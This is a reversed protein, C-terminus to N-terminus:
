TLMGRKLLHVISRIREEKFNELPPAEGTAVSYLAEMFPRGLFSLLSLSVVNLMFHFPNEESILKEQKWKIIMHFLRDPGMGEKAKFFESLISSLNGPNQIVELAMMRVFEPNNDYLEVYFRAIREMFEEPGPESVVLQFIIPAMREFMDRIVNQYLNKKSNFYYFLMAKNVKASKAIREMRAGELGYKSFEKLAAKLIRKQSEKESM